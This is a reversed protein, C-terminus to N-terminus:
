KKLQILYDQFASETVTITGSAVVADGSSLVSLEFTDGPEISVNDLHRYNRWGDLIIPYLADDTKLYTNLKQEWKEAWSEPFSKVRGILLAGIDGKAIPVTRTGFKKSHIKFQGDQFLNPPGNVRIFVSPVPQMDKEVDIKKGVWPYLEFSKKVYGTAEIHYTRGLPNTLRTFYLQKDKKSLIAAPTDAADESVVSISIPEEVDDAYVLVTSLSNGVVFIITFLIFLMVPKLFFLLVRQLIQKSKTEDPENSIKFLLGLLGYLTGAAYTIGIFFPWASFHHDIWIGVIFIGVVFLVMHVLHGSFIFPKEKKNNSMARIRRIGLFFAM